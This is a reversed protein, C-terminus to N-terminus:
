SKKKKKVDIEKECHIILKSKSLSFSENGIECM